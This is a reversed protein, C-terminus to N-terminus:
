DQSPSIVITGCKSCFYIFIWPDNEINGKEDCDIQMPVDMDKLIYYSDGESEDYVFKM